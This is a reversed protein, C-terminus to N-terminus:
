SQVEVLRQLHHIAKKIDELGGKQQERALYSIAVGKHYGRYEEETLWAELAEWPQVDMDKYHSGGVQRTLASEDTDTSTTQSPRWWHVSHPHNLQWVFDQVQAGYKRDGASHQVDIVTNPKITDPYGELWGSPQQGTTNRIWGEM